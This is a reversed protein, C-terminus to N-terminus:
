GTVEDRQRLRPVAYNGLKEYLRIKTVRGVNVGGVTVTKDNVNGTVDVFKARREKARM